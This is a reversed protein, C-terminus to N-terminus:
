RTLRRRLLLALGVFSLLSPAGSSSCGSNAAVGGRGGGGSGTSGGGMLVGGSGAVGGALAAGGGTSLGGGQGGTGGGSAGGASASGGGTGAVGGASASGGGAVGGASASGGGTGAIGGASASGGGTGAVGGGTGAAGGASVSGGGTGASGGASAVGGGAGGGGAGTGPVAGYRWARTIGVEDLEGDFAGDGNAPCAARAGPAGIFLVDNTGALVAPARVIRNTEVGNMLFVMTGTAADYQFAVHTWQNLPAIANSRIDYQVGGAVRVRAQFSRDEELVLSYAGNINPKGLLLRYNNTMDCNPESRPKLSLEITIANVPLLSSAHAVELRGSVGDLSLAKGLQGNNRAPYSAGGRLTGTNSYGSSDASRTRDYTGQATVFENLHWLGAYRGDLADDFVVEGYNSTNSGFFPWVDMGTSLPLPRVNMPGPSSFFLRVTDDTAPNLDGDIHALQWNTPYGIVSLANRRPGCGPPDENPPGTRCPMNVATFNIAEGDPFIWPYAGYFLQTSTYAVGAPDRLPREALRYRGQVLPDTNMGAISKPTTWGSVGCATQNVSYVLTDIAGSNNPHGQWVMLKGDRTITPEIGRLTPTLPTLTSDTWTFSSIAATATNPNSVVIRLLRRRLVNNPAPTVANSDIVVLNYCRHSGGANPAGSADCATPQQSSECMALANEENTAAQILVSPSFANALSPPQGATVVVSQPRLVRAEWGPSTRVIFLRGDFSVNHGNGGFPSTAVNKSTAALATSSILLTVLARRM